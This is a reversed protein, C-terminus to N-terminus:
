RYPHGVIWASAGIIVKLTAARHEDFTLHLVAAVGVIVYDLTLCILPEGARCCGASRIQGSALVRLRMPQILYRAGLGAQTAWALALYSLTAALLWTVPLAKYRGTRSVLLGGLISAFIVGGMVPAIM